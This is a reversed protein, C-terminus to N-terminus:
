TELAVYNTNIDRSGVTSTVESGSKEYRPRISKEAKGLSTAVTSGTLM